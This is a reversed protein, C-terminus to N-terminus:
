LCTEHWADLERNKLIGNFSLKDAKECFKELTMDKDTYEVMFVPKGSGPFIAFEECWNDAFCDESLAWDFVDILDYAQEGDNKLGISLGRIHVEGALWKNYVIQDKYTLPFGTDQLYGDINDPEVADFGKEKCMDFRRRMIPALLEIQRIDLWKEGSWGQYDKGIVSDPFLDKDPRYDEWSGVSIYCIVRRGKDHLANIVEKDNEFLDIDFVDADVTQDVHDTLDWQFSTKVAPKWISLERPKELPMTNSPTITSTKVETATQSREVCGSISLLLVLIILIAGRQLM